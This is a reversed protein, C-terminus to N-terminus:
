NGHRARLPRIDVVEMGAARASEIGLDADEFALCDAPPVGLRKAAELFLDPAPKGHKVDDAAVLEQFKGSLGLADLTRSVIARSGSTAVAMPLRGEYELILSVVPEIPKIEPIKAEFLERKRAAIETPPLDYGHRENLTRIIDMTPMGAMEYFMAEPFDAGHDKLAELWSRYHLPMTDAVTGDCDFVLARIHPAIVIM